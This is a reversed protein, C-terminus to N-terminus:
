RGKGKQEIKNLNIRDYFDDLDYVFDEWFYSGDENYSNAEFYAHKRELLEKMGTYNNKLVEEQNKTLTKPIHICYVNYEEGQLTTDSANILTIIGKAAMTIAQRHVTDDIYEFGLTHQLEKFWPEQLIDNKFAADHDNEDNNKYEKDYSHIGFPHEKGDPSILIGKVFEIDTM